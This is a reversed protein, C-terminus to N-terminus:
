AGEEPPRNASVKSRVLFFFMLPPGIVISVMLYLVTFIIRLPWGLLGNKWKYEIDEIREQHTEPSKLDLPRLLYRSGAQRCGRTLDECHDDCTYLSFPEGNPM